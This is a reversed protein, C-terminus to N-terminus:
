KRVEEASKWIGVIKELLSFEGHFNLNNLLNLNDGDYGQVTHFM